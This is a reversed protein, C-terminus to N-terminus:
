SSGLLVVTGDQGVFADLEVRGREFTSDTREFGAATVVEELIGLADTGPPVRYQRDVSPCSDFCWHNGSRFESIVEWDAPIEIRDMEEAIRSHLPPTAVVALVAAALGTVAVVGTAWRRMGPWPRCALWAFAAPAGALTLPALAWGWRWGGVGQTLGVVAWAALTVFITALLALAHLVHRM